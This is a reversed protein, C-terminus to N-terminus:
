KKSTQNQVGAIRARVEDQDGLYRGRLPAMAEESPIVDLNEDLQDVFM